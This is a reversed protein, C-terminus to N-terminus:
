VLPFLIPKLGHVKTVYQGWGLCLYVIASFCSFLRATCKSLADGLRSVFLAFFSVVKLGHAEMANHRTEHYGGLSVVKLDHAEM